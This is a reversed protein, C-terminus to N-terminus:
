FALFSLFRIAPLWWSMPSPPFFLFGFVVGGIQVAQVLFCGNRLRCFVLDISQAGRVQCTGEDLKATTFREAFTFIM